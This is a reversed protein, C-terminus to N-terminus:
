PSPVGMRIKRQVQQDLEVVKNDKVLFMVVTVEQRSTITVSTDIAVNFHALNTVRVTVEEPEKGSSFYHVNVTYWGDPLATLSTVEYNRQVTIRKGDVFYFDNATGLDDKKLTIYGNNKNLYGVTNGTPGLVHLDIDEASDDDWTAEIMMMIPPDITGDKAIPNLFPLMIFLLLLFGLSIIFLLDIFSPGTNRRQIM